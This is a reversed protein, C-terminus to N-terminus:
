KNFTWPAWRRSPVIYEGWCSSLYLNSILMKRILLLELSTLHGRKHWSSAQLGLLLACSPVKTKLALVKGM